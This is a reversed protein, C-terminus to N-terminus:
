RLIRLTLENCTIFEFGNHIFCRLLKSIKIGLRNGTMEYYVFRKWWTCYLKLGAPKNMLDFSHFYLVVPDSEHMLSKAVLGISMNLLMAPHFKLRRFVHSIPIEVFREGLTRIQVGCGAYYDFYKSVEHFLLSSAQFGVARFGRVDFGSKQFVEYSRRVYDPLNGESMLKKVRDYCDKEYIYPHECGHSAVEHGSEQAARLDEIEADLVDATVFLTGKVGIDDLFCTVASVNGPTKYPNEVDFTVLAAKM